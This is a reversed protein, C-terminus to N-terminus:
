LSEEFECLDAVGELIENAVLREGSSAIGLELGSEVHKRLVFL